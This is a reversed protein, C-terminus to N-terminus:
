PQVKPGASFSGIPVRRPVRDRPRLPIFTDSRSPQRGPPIITRDETPM